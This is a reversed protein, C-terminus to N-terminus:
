FPLDKVADKYSPIEEKPKKDEKKINFVNISEVVCEDVRKKEGRETEYSRVHWNGVIEVKDGKNAYVQLYEAKKDWAVFNIFDTDYSGDQNKHERRIAITNSVVLTGDVTKYPTIDKVIHGSLIVKNM